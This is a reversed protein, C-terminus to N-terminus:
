LEVRGESRIVKAKQMPCEISKPVSIQSVRLIPVKEEHSARM